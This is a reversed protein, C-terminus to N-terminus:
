YGIECQVPLIAGHTGGRVQRVKAKLGIRRPWSRNVQL